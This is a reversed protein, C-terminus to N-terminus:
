ILSLSYYCRKDCAIGSFAYSPVLLLVCGGLAALELGLFGLDGGGSCFLTSSYFIKM